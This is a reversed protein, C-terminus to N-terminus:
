RECSPGCPARRGDLLVEGEYPKIIKALLRAVTTKGAGSEGVVATIKGADLRVSVSEVAHM